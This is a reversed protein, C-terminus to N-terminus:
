PVRFGYYPDFTFIITDKDHHRVHFGKVLVSAGPIVQVAILWRWGSFPEVVEEFALALLFAM